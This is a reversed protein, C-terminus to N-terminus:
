AAPQAHHELQGDLVHMSLERDSVDTSAEAHGSFEVEEVPQVDIPTGGDPPPPEEDVGSLVPPAFGPTEAVPELAPGAVETGDTSAAEGSPAPAM